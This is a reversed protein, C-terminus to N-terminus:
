TFCGHLSVMGHCEGHSIGEAEDLQITDFFGRKMETVWFECSQQVSKLMSEDLFFGYRSARHMYSDYYSKFPSLLFLAHYFDDTYEGLWYDLLAKVIDTEALMAHNSMVSLPSVLLAHYVRNNSNQDHSQNNRHNNSLKSSSPNDQRNSNSQVNVLTIALHGLIEDGHCALLSYLLAGQDRLNEILKADSSNDSCENVFDSIATIDSVKESRITLKM